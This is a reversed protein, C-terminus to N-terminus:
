LGCPLGDPGECRNRSTSWVCGPPCSNNTNARQSISVQRSCGGSATVTVKGSRANSGNTGCTVEFSSGSKSTSLWSKNDSLSYSSSSTTVNFTKTGGSSSFEFSGPSVSISCPNPPNSNNNENTVFNVNSVSGTPDTYIRLPPNFTYGSLSPAVEIELQNNVELSYYGNGDTTTQGGPTFTILAGAVGGGNKYTVRGSFNADPPSWVTINQSMSGSLGFQDTVVLTIVYNGPPSLSHNLASSSSFIQGNAKWTYSISNGDPDYSSSANVNFLFHERVSNTSMLFSAIPARNVVEFSKSISHSEGQEDVVTLTVNKNGPTSYSTQELVLDGGTSWSYILEGGEPDSSLSADFSVQDNLYIISPSITFDAIPPSNLIEITKSLSSEGGCVDTVTLTITKPGSTDFSISTVPDNNGSSWQYSLNDFDQDFSVTGDLTIQDYVHIQSRPSIQFNAVPAHNAYQDDFRNTVNFDDDLILKLKEDQDYVYYESLGNPDIRTHVGVGSLYVNAGVFGAESPYIVINDLLSQTGDIVISNGTVEFIYTGWEQSLVQSNAGVRVQSGKAKMMVVYSGNPVSYTLSGSYGNGVHVGGNVINAEDYLFGDKQVDNDFSNFFVQDYGANEFVAVVREESSLINAVMREGSYKISVPNGFKGEFHVVKVSRDYLETDFVFHGNGDIIPIQYDEESIQRYAKMQNVQTLFIKPNNQEDTSLSYEYFDDALVLNDRVRKKNIVTSSMNRIILENLVPGSFDSPYKFSETIWQDESDRVTRSAIQLDNNYSYNTIESLITANNTYNRSVSNLRLWEVEHDYNIPFWDYKQFAFDGNTFVYDAKRGVVLGGIRDEEITQYNYHTEEVLIASRDFHKKSILVGQLYPKILRPQQPNGPGGGRNQVEKYNYETHGADDYVRVTNFAINNGSSKGANSSFGIVSCVDGFGEEAPEFYDLNPIRYDAPEVHNLLYKEGYQFRQYKLEAGDLDHQTISNIRAGGMYIVETEVWRCKDYRIDLYTSSVNENSVLEIIEFSGELSISKRIVIEGPTFPECGGALCGQYDDWENSTLSLTINKDQSGLQDKFQITVFPPELDNFSIRAYIDIDFSCNTTLIDGWSLNEQFPVWDNEVNSHNGFNFESYGGTPYYLRQILGKKGYGNANRNAGKQPVLTNNLSTNLEASNQYGWHDQDKSGRPLIVDSNYTIGYGYNQCANETETLNQVSKLRLRKKTFSDTGLDDNESQNYYDYSLKYHELIRNSIKSSIMIEELRVGNYLDERNANSIFELLFEDTEIRELNQETISYFVPVNSPFSGCGGGQQTSQYYVENGNQAYQITNPTYKLNIEGGAPSTINTLYWASSFNQLYADVTPDSTLVDTNETADPGGFHYRFGKDDLIIFGTIESQGEQLVQIKLNNYPLSVMEGDNNYIMTGSLGNFNYHFLDPRTDLSGNYIRELILLDGPDEGDLIDSMDDSNIGYIPHSLGTVVSKFGNIREDPLGNTQRTIVGGAILSWNLGVWSAVADVKIGEPMYSLQVPFAIDKETLDYIPITIEPKGSYYNIPIEAVETISSASPSAPLESVVNVNQAVASFIYFIGSVSLWLHRISFIPQTRFIM